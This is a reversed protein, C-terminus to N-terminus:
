QWGISCVLFLALRVFFELFIALGLSVSHGVGLPDPLAASMSEFNTWKRMGHSLLGM